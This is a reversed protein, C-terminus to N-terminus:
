AVVEGAWGGTRPGEEVVLLRAPREVSAVVLRSRAPAAHAPRHGRLRDGRAALETPRRSAEHVRKMATAITLDAGPACTPAQRAPHGRETGDPGAPRTSASTSSSSSRTRTGSRHRAAPGERRRPRRPSSRRARPRGSGRRRCRRTSRASAFAAASRRASWSPCWCQENSIYWYKAAQNVLSDMRASSTRSCSRSSRGCAASPAGSPPGSLALESIPTDFVREQATEASGEDGRLRRRRDGRGRRLPHRGPRARAGRRAGGVDRARFELQDIM